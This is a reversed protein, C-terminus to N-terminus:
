TALVVSEEKLLDTAYEVLDYVSSSVEDTRTLSTTRLELALELNATNGGPTLNPSGLMASIMGDTEAIYLKTHLTRCFFLTPNINQRLLQVANQHWEAKEHPERTIVNVMCKKNGRLADILLQLPDVSGDVYCGIWPTILWVRYVLDRCSYVVNAFEAIPTKHVLRIRRM